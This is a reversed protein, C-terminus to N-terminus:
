FQDYTLCRRVLKRIGLQQDFLRQVDVSLVLGTFSVDTLLFHPYRHFFSRLVAIANYKAALFITFALAHSYDYLEFLDARDYLLIYNSPQLQLNVVRQYESMTGFKHLTRWHDDETFWHLSSNWKTAQFYLDERSRTCLERLSLTPLNLSRLTHLRTQYMEKTTLLLAAVTRIDTASLIRVLIVTDFMKSSISYCFNQQTTM